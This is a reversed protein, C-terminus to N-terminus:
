TETFLEDNRPASTVSCKYLLGSVPFVCCPVVAFAKRAKICFGDNEICFGDNQIFLEDTKISFEDNKTCFRAKLCSDVIPETAQDPHLGILIMM